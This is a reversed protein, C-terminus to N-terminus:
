QHVNDAGSSSFESAVDEITDVNLKRRARKDSVELERKRKVPKPNSPQDATLRQPNM